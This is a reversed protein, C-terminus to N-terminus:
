GLCCHLSTPPHHSTVLYAIVPLRVSRNLFANPLLLFSFCSFFPLSQPSLLDAHNWGTLGSSSHKIFIAPKSSLSPSLKSDHLDAHSWPLPPFWAYNHRSSLWLFAWLHSFLFAVFRFSGDTRPFREMFNRFKWGILFSYLTWLTYSSAHLFSGQVLLPTIRQTYPTHHASFSPEWWLNKFWKWTCRGKYVLKKKWLLTSTCRGHPPRRATCAVFSPWSAHSM